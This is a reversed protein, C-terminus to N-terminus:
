IEGTWTPEEDAEMAALQAATMPKQKGHLAFILAAEDSSLGHRQVLLDVDCGAQADKIAHQHRDDSGQYIERQLVDTALQDVRKMLAEHLDVVAHLGIEIRDLQERHARAQAQLVNLRLLLLGSVGAVIITVLAIVYLLVNM